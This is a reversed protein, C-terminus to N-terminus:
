PVYTPKGDPEATPQPGPHRPLDRLSRNRYMNVGPAAGEVDVLALEWAYCKDILNDILRHDDDRASESYDLVTAIAEAGRLAVQQLASIRQGTLPRDAPEGLDISVQEVVKEADSDVDYPWVEGAPRSLRFVTTIGRARLIPYATMDTLAPLAHRRSWFLSDGQFKGLHAKLRRHAIRVEARLIDASTNFVTEAFAAAPRLLADRQMAFQHDEDEFVAAYIQKRQECSLYREDSGYRAHLRALNTSLNPEGLDVYLKPRRFFDVSIAHAV